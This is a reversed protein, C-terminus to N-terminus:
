WHWTTFPSHDIPRSILRNEAAAYGALVIGIVHDDRGRWGLLERVEPSDSHKGTTWLSGIELARLALLLNQIAAAVSLTEEREVVAPRDLRPSVGVCILAPATAAIRRAREPESGSARAAAALAEGLQFRADGSFVAFRWPRTLRHNPALVAMDLAIRLKEADVPTTAFSYISRRGALVRLAADSDAEYQSMSRGRNRNRIPDGASPVDVCKDRSFQM